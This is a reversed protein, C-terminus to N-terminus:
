FSCSFQSKKAGSKMSFEKTKWAKGFFVFSFTTNFNVSLFLFSYFVLRCVFFRISKNPTIQHPFLFAKLQAFFSKQTCKFRGELESSSSFSFGSFLTLFRSFIETTESMRESKYASSMKWIFNQFRVYSCFSFCFSLFFVKLSTSNVIKITKWAEHRTGSFNKM